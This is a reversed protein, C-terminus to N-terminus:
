KRLNICVMEKSDRLVLYGDALAMPAWADHGDPFVKVQDLQTYGKTSARAITLVGDDSLIFFKGDAVIFPGLGFRASKGSTWVMERFNSPDVCVLQLRLSSAYKPLISFLHGQFYIPTQQEAALGESPKYKDIIEVSIQGDNEVMQVV